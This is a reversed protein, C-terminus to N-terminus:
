RRGRTARILQRELGHIAQALHDEEQGSLGDLHLGLRVGNEGPQISRVRADAEIVTGQLEIRVRVTDDLAPEITGSLVVGAGGQSIDVLRAPHEAREHGIRSPPLNLFGPVHLRFAGRREFVFIEDPLAALLAPAGDVVAPGVAACRFRVDGSDVRGRVTLLTGPKLPQKPPPHLDDLALRGAPADVAVVMSTHWQASGEVRVSLLSRHVRLRLLLSEIGAASRLLTGSLDEHEGADATSM